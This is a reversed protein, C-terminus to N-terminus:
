LAKRAKGSEVVAHIVIGVLAVAAAVCALATQGLALWTGATGAGVGTILGAFYTKNM